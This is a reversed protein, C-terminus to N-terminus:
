RIKDIVFLLKAKDICIFRILPRYDNTVNFHSGNLVGVLVSYAFGGNTINSADTFVRISFAGPQVRTDFSVDFCQGNEWKVDGDNIYVDINSTLAIDVPTTGSYSAHRFYNTYKALTLVKPSNISVINSINDTQTNKWTYQQNLIVLSNLAMADFTYNVSISTGNNIINNYMDYTQEIMGMVNNTNDFLAKNAIYSKELNTIRLMLEDYNTDNIMLSKIDKTEAVVDTLFGLNESYTDAMHRMATLADIYLDLSFTNFDNISREEAAGESSTDFKLNVKHAFSNGNIKHFVDPRAKDIAPLKWYTGSQIPKSLFQIGFLNTVTDTPNSPDYLEYYLLIANYSFDLSGNTDNFDAFTHIAPNENMTKYHTKDFDIVIGDLNSRIFSVSTGDPNRRTRTVKRNRADGISMTGGNYEIMNDTYYAYETMSPDYFWYNNTATVAGIPIADVTPDTISWEIIAPDFTYDYHAHVDLLFPHTDDYHRGVVYAEDLASATVNHYTQNPILSPDVNEYKYTGDPNKELPNTMIYNADSISNFLVYPTSGVNTPVYIYFESQASKNQVTNVVEIDAIYKVVRNYAYGLGIIEDEETFSVGNSVVNSDLELSNAQRFRMSGTEKLWKWFVREAVTRHLSTDYNPNSILLAEFNLCYNEFSEALYKVMNNNYVSTNNYIFLDGASNIQMANDGDANPVEFTPINILAFKSMKFRKNDLSFATTMDNLAGQMTYLIGKNNPIPKIFPTVAM